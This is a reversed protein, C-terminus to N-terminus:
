RHHFVRSRSSLSGPLTEENQRPTKLVVLANL